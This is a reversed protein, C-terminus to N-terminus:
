LEWRILISRYKNVQINTSIEKPPFNKKSILLSEDININEALALVDEASSDDIDESSVINVSEDIFEESRRYEPETFWLTPM